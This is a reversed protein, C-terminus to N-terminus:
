SIASRRGVKTGGLRAICLMISKEGAITLFIERANRGIEWVKKM